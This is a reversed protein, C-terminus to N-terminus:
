SGPRLFYGRMKDTIPRQLRELVQLMDEWTKRKETHGKDPGDEARLLYSPHYTPMLPIGQFDQWRGRVSGMTTKIGLLGQVASLGLAVIVKPKVIAIQRLLYPRCQEIETPTPPRNGSAGPPTDPRCKLINAIYVSERSDGMAKIIRTLLQGAPGVFPEGQRDEDMGPAEGVFMLEAHVNGVGFVVQRRTRVLHPCRECALADTRLAHLASPPDTIPPSPTPHPQPASTSPPPTPSPPPHNAPTQASGPRGIRGFSPPSSPATPHTSTTHHPKPRQLLDSSVTVERIGQTQLDRLHQLTADLLQQYRSPM